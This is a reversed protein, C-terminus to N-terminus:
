RTRKPSVAHRCVHCPASPDPEAAEAEKDDRDDKEHHEPAPVPEQRDDLTLRGGCEASLDGRCMEVNMETADGGRREIVYLDGFRGPEVGLRRDRGDPM